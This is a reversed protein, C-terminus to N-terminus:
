VLISRCCGKIYSFGSGNVKLECLLETPLQSNVVKEFCLSMVLVVRIYTCVSNPDLLVGDTFSYFLATFSYFLTLPIVLQMNTSGLHM